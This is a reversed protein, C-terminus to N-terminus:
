FQTLQPSASIQEIIIDEEEEQAFPHHLLIVRKRKLNTKTEKDGL